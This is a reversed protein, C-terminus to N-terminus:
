FDVKNDSLNNLHCVSNLCKIIITSKKTYVESISCTDLQLQWFAKLSLGLIGLLIMKLIVRHTVIAIKKGNNSLLKFFVKYSREFCESMSEGGPFSAIEPDYKYNFYNEPDNKKVWNLDKGEWQGFNIDTLEPIKEIQIGTSESIKKATQYARLLPSSYIKEIGFDKLYNATKEAQLIGTEDLPIDKHGRFITNKNWRTQGHRILYVTLDTM